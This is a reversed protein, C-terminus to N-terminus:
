SFTAQRQVCQESIDHKYKINKKAIIKFLYIIQIVAVYKLLASDIQSTRIPSFHLTDHQMQLSFVPSHDTDEANHSSIFKVKTM